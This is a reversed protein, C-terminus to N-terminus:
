AETDSNSEGFCSRRGVFDQSGGVLSGNRAILESEFNTRVIDEMNNNARSRDPTLNFKDLAAKFAAVAKVAPSEAPREPMIAGYYNLLVEAYQEQTVVQDVPLVPM